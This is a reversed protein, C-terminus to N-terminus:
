IIIWDNELEKRLKNYKNVNWEWFEKIARNAKCQLNATMGLNAM